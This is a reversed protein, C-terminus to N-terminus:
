GNGPQVRPRVRQGARLEKTPSVVVLSEKTLGERIEVLQPGKAGVAVSQQNLAGGIVSWVHDGVVASAPVLLAQETENIVINAEVTMGIRLPTEGAIDIRVRYSRAIPDGKPTVSRVTGRFVEGPFADARILVTRGPEVQPIDEEDVEATIRLPASAAALWFVPQNAPILQGVEGDRRIVVGDEPAVLKMFEAEAAAKASAAKAVEWESRAREFTEISVAQNKVSERYREFQGRAFEERARLQELLGQMDEDELRALLAGKVVKEGEDTNLEVLRSAVRTAIPLMISAEVSGTAYVAQVAPGQQPQVVDVVSARLRLLLFAAVSVALLLLLYKTPNLKIVAGM